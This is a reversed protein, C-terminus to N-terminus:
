RLRCVSWGYRRTESDDTKDSAMYAGLLWEGAHGFHHRSVPGSGAVVASLLLADMHQDRRVPKKPQAQAVDHACGPTHIHSGSASLPGLSASDSTLLNLFDLDSQTTHEMRRAVMPM